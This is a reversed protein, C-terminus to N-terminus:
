ISSLPDILVLEGNDRVMVNDFHLDMWPSHQSLFDAIPILDPDLNEDIYDPDMLLMDLTNLLKNTDTMYKKAIEHLPELRVAWFIQNLRVISGRIKPVYKNNQNAKCFNIWALYGSDKRFVKLVFPYEPNRYVEGSIGSGVSVFGHKSMKSTLDDRWESTGYAGLISQDDFKQKFDRIDDPNRLEALYQHHHHHNKSIESLKM